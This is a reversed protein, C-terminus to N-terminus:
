RIEKTSTTFDSGALWVRARAFHTSTGELRVLARRM